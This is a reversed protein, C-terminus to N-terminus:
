NGAESASGSASARSARLAREIKGLNQTMWEDISLGPPLLESLSVIQTSPAGTTKAKRQSARAEAALAKGEVSDEQANLILLNAKHYRILQKADNLQKPSVENGHLVSNWFLIPTVNRIGLDFMKFDAISETEIASAKWGQALQSEQSRLLELKAVLKAGHSVFYGRHSHDLACLKKTLWNTADILYTTSYWVHPNDLTAFGVGETLSIVRSVHDVMHQVPKGTSKGLVDMFVDYNQGNALVLDAKKVALEDRVTAEYSHPDQLPNNIISTVSVYEGGVLEAINGWNSLSAVVKIKGTDSSKPDGQGFNMPACGSLALAAVSVALAAALTRQIFTRNRTHKM